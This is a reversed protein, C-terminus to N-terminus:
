GAVGMGVIAGGISKDITSDFLLFSFCHIQLEIPELITWRLVLELVETGWPVGVQSVIESIMVDKYIM